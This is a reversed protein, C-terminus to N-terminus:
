AATMELRGNNQCELVWFGQWLFNAVTHGVFGWLNRSSLIINAFWLWQSEGPALHEVTDPM